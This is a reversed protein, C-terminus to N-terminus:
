TGRNVKTEIGPSLPIHACGKAENSPKKEILNLGQSANVKETASRSDAAHQGM